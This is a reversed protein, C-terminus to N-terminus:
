RNSFYISVSSDHSMHIAFHSPRVPVFTSTGIRVQFTEITNAHIASTELNYYINGLLIYICFIELHNLRKDRSRKFPKSMM